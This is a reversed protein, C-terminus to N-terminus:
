GDAQIPISFRFTSGHEERSEVKMEGGHLEVLGRSLSLGIGMGGYHRTSSGDAQRFEEFITSLSDEPIGIGTDRVFFEISDTTRKAGIEVKGSHTFKVANDVLNRLVQCIRHFDVYVSPLAEDCHVELQLSKEYIEPQIADAVSEVLEYPSYYDQELELQRKKLKSLDLVENIMDLLHTACRAVHDLAQRQEETVSGYLGDRLLEIYGLIANLPTRFEHSMNSVFETQLRSSDDETRIATKPGDEPRLLARRLEQVTEASFKMVRFSVASDDSLIIWKHDSGGRAMPLQEKPADPHLVDGGPAPLRPSANAVIMAQYQHGLAETWQLAADSDDSLEAVEALDPARSLVEHATVGVLLIKRRKRRSRPAM